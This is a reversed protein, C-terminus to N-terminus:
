LGLVQLDLLVTREAGGWGVGGWGLHAVLRVRVMLTPRCPKPKNERVGVMGMFFRYCECFPGIVSLVGCFPGYVQTLAGHIPPNIPPLPDWTM